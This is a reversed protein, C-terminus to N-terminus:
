APSHRVGALHEQGKAKLQQNIDDKLDFGEMQVQEAVAYAGILDGSDLRLRVEALRMRLSRLQESNRNTLPM